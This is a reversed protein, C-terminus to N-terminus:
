FIFSYFAVAVAAICLLGILVGAIVGGIPNVQEVSLPPYKISPPNNAANLMFGARKLQKQQAITQNPM